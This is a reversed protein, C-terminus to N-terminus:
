IYICVYWLGSSQNLMVSDEQNYGGNGSMIIVVVMAGNPTHISNLYKSLMTNVIPISPYHLIHALTDM